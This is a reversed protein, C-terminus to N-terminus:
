VGNVTCVEIGYTLEKNVGRTKGIRVTPSYGIYTCAAVCLLSLKLKSNRLRELHKIEASLSVQKSNDIYFLENLLRHV